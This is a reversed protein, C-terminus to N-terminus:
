SVYLYDLESLTRQPKLRRATGETKECEGPATFGAAGFLYKIDVLTGVLNITTGVTAVIM